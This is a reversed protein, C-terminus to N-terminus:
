HFEVGQLGFGAEGRLASGVRCGLSWALGGQRAVAIRGQTTLVATARNEIPVRVSVSGWGVVIADAVGWGLGVVDSANM